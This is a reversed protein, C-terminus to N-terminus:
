ILKLTLRNIGVVEGPTIAAILHMALIEWNDTALQIILM